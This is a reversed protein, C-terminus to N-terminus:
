KVRFDEDFDSAPKPLQPCGSGAGIHGYLQMEIYSRLKMLLVPYDRDHGV